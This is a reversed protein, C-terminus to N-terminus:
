ERNLPDILLEATASSSDIVRLVQELSANVLCTGDWELIKDGPKLEM